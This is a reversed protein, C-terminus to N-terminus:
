LLVSWNLMEKSNMNDRDYKHVTQLILETEKYFSPYKNRLVHIECQPFMSHM